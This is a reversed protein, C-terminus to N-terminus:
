EKLRRRRLFAVLVPLFLLGALPQPFIQGLASGDTGKAPAMSHGVVAASGSIGISPCGEPLDVPLGAITRLIGLGDVSDVDQDCDVDGAIALCEGDIPLAAVSRLVVLADVSDADGDCDVDGKISSGVAVHVSDALSIVQGDNVILEIEYAGEVDASFGPNTAEPDTLNANGGAPQSVITWVFTLPDNDLDSSWTGDLLVPTGPTTAQDPGADATPQSNVTAVIEISIVADGFQGDSDEAELSVEHVGPSLTTVEITRGSGLLGDVDSYWALSEEPLPGDEWDTANGELVVRRGKLFSPIADGDNLPTVIWAMPPKGAVTFVGSQAMSTNVGDTALVRIIAGESGALRSTDMELSNATWNEAATSWTSGGDTSYQVLYSVQDGDPDSGTWTVTRTEDPGWQEGPLPSLVQVSPPNASRVREALVDTGRKLVIRSFDEAIAADFPLLESFQGSQPGVAGCCGGLDPDHADDVVVDFSRTYLVGGSDDRMELSYEGSGPPSAGAVQTLHYFPEFETPIESTEELSITGRVWLADDAPGGAPVNSVAAGSVTAGSSMASFFINYLREYIYTSVWETGKGYSM